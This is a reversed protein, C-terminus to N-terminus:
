TTQYEVKDRIMANIIVLLKRAVAILAVKAPKGAERLAEYFAKFRPSNRVASLAAMYLADRVRKRGGRIHRQGRRMGSDNNVPAVGALASVARRSASGIEPMLALLLSSTVDGVGPISQMIRADRSLAEHNAILAQVQDDIEDIRTKLWAIHTRINEAIEPVDVEHLRIKEQKRTAVLQDRRKMLATLKRRTPCSAPDPVLEMKRGMLALMRADVRDTKALIGEAKAFSRSRNPNVRAFPVGARELTRRLRADYSGTAEFVVLLRRNTLRAVFASITKDNNAICEFTESEGDFIDLSRKSVDCGIIHDYISM